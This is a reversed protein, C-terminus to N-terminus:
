KGKTTTEDRWATLATVANHLHKQRTHGNTQGAKILHILCHAQNDSHFQEQNEKIWDVAINLMAELWFTRVRPHKARDDSSSDQQTNGTNQHLTAIERTAQELCEPSHNPADWVMKFVPGVDTSLMQQIDAGTACYSDSTEQTM